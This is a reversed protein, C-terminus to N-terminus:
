GLEGMMIALPGKTKAISLLGRELWTRTVVATRDWASADAELELISIDKASLRVGNLAEVVEPPDQAEDEDVDLDVRLVEGSARDVYLGGGINIGELMQGDRQLKTLVLLVDADDPEDGMAGTLTIHQLIELRERLIAAERGTQPARVEQGVRWLRKGHRMMQESSLCFPNDMADGTGVIGSLNCAMRELLCLITSDTCAVVEAGSEVMRQLAKTELWIKQYDEDYLCPEVVFVVDKDEFLGEEVYEVPDMYYLECPNIVCPAVEDEMAEGNIEEIERQAEIDDESIEGRMLPSMYVVLDVNLELEPKGLLAGVLGFFLGGFRIHADEIMVAINLSDKGALDERNRAIWLALSAAPWAWYVLGKEIEDSLLECDEDKRLRGILGTWDNEQTVLSNM